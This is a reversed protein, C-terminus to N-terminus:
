APVECRSLYAQVSGMEIRRARGMKVTRFEGAKILEFTKSRGLRLIEQTEDTTIWIEAMVIGGEAVIQVREM